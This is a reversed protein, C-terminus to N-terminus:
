RARRDSQKPINLRPPFDGDLVSSDTETIETYPQHRAFGSAANDVQDLRRGAWAVAVVVFGLGFTCAAAIILFVLIPNM